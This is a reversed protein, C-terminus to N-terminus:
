TIRNYHLGSYLELFGFQFIHEFHGSDFIGLQAFDDDEEMREGFLLVHHLLQNKEFFVLKQGLKLLGFIPGKELVGVDHVELVVGRQFLFLSDFGRKVQSLEIKM